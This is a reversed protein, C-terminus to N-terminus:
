MGGAAYMLLGIILQYGQWTCTFENSAKNFKKADDAKTLHVNLDLPTDVANTNTM